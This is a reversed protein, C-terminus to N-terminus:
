LRFHVDERRSFSLARKARAMRSSSSVGTSRTLLEAPQRRQALAHLRALDELALGIHVRRATHVPIGVPICFRCLRGPADVRKAGAEHVLGMPWAAGSGPDRPGRLKGPVRFVQGASIGSGVSADSIAENLALHREAEPVAAEAGCGDERWAIRTPYTAARGLLTALALLVAPTLGVRVPLIYIRLRLRLLAISM